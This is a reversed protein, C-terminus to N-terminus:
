RGRYLSLASSVVYYTSVTALWVGMVGLIGSVPCFWNFVGFAYIVDQNILQNIPALFDPSDPLMDVYLGLVYFVSSGLFEIFQEIM